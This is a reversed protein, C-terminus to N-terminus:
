IQHVANPRTVMLRDTEVKEGNKFREGKIVDALLRYGRLRRWKKEATIMLKWTMSLTTQRSGCNKTKTTRLRVTAFVSEIPNTTRIHQWHMAPFDYFALMTEKDKNLCQMARAYKAEFRRICSDFAKYADERTEAQWIDHLAEKIKPQIAKPVKNLVNATKHVWCRQQQTMPWRKSLAKWFGLAGDGVALKPPVALGQGELQQIVDIWSAESERYGDLVALVEKRGTEDSGVVVLLCLKDDMRVNCYVGDAWIYVYRRKSLDRKRWKAYDNEWTQKLRSVTGASLGGTDGGLLSELAPQMDGTSIGRLYLWPIFEEMSKTRKLYPPILESNFKVGQGSRDRVKPLKVPIDGLGTQITRAPLYGNRVVSRKGEEKDDHRFLLAQVEAEIAKALLEQAGKKLLLQLADVDPSNIGVVTDNEKM